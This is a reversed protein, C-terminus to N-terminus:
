ALEFVCTVLDFAVFISRVAGSVVCDVVFAISDFVTLM